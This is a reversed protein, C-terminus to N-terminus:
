ADFPEDLPLHTWDLAFLFDHSRDEALMEATIFGEIMRRAEHKLLALNDQTTPDDRNLGGSREWRRPVPPLASSDRTKM